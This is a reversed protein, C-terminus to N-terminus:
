FPLDETITPARARELADRYHDIALELSGVRELLRRAAVGLPPQGRRALETTLEPYAAVLAVRLAVLAGDLSALVLLEPAQDADDLTLHARARSM